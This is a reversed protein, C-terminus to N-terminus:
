QFTTVSYSSAQLQKLLQMKGLLSIIIQQQQLLATKTVAQMVHVVDQMHMCNLKFITIVVRWGKGFIM